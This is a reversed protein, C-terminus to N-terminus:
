RPHRGPVSSPLPRRAVSSITVPSRAVPSVSWRASAALGWRTGWPASRSSPVLRRSSRGPSRRGAEGGPRDGEPHGALLQRHWWGRWGEVGGGQSADDSCPRSRSVAAGVAEDEVEGRRRRTSGSPEGWGAGDRAVWGPRGGGGSGSAPARAVSAAAADGSSTGSTSDAGERAARAAVRRSAPGADVTGSTAGVRTSGRGAGGGVAVPRGRGPPM